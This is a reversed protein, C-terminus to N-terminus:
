REYEINRKRKSEKKNANQNMQVENIETIEIMEPLLAVFVKHNEGTDQGWKVESELIYNVNFVKDATRYVSEIEGSANAISTLIEVDSDGSEWENNVAVELVKEFGEYEVDGYASLFDVEKQLERIFNKYDEKSFRKEVDNISEKLNLNVKYLYGTNEHPTYMTAIEPSDSFYFRKGEAVGNATGIFDFNFKEFLHNSGHYYNSM